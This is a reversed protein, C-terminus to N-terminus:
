VASVTCTASSSICDNQGNGHRTEGYFPIDLNSIAPCSIATTADYRWVADVRCKYEAGTLAGRYTLTVEIYCTGSITYIQLFISYGGSVYSYRCNAGTYTLRFLGGLSTCAISGGDGCIGAIGIDGGDDDQFGTLTVDFKRPTSGTCGCCTADNLCCCDSGVSVSGGKQLISSTSAKIYLPM